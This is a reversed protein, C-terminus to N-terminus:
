ASRREPTNSAFFMKRINSCTGPIRVDPPSSESGVFAVSSFLHIFMYKYIYIYISIYLLIDLICIYIFM